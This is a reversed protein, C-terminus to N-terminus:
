YTAGDPEPSGLLFRLKALLDRGSFPKALFAVNPHSLADRGLGAETYGSLLLVKLGPRSRRLREALDIGTMGPMIVDTILLSVPQDFRGITDLAHAADEAVLVSFGNMRLITAVLERVGPEDEVLLVTEHGREAQPPSSTVHTATIPESTAPFYIKFVTGHELESYVQIHGAAQRVMGYVISLGLGSGKGAEKTTFFPEFIRQQTAADMGQGTDTVMVRVYQGAPTGLHERAYHQDLEVADTEILIRGGNPMAHRANIVLNVLIQELHVPDIKINSLHPELRMALDIDEGIIRRLMKEINLVVANPSIVVAQVVQNRSFALLQRTLESARNCAKLSQEILDHLPDRDPFQDLLLQNCGIVITLMNNFDHAIGGALTGIAEMRQAHILQAELARRKSVDTLFVVAFQGGNTQVHAASMEVPFQTGDKRRATLERIANSSFTRGTEFERLDPRPECLLLDLKSDLLDSRTYGFMQEVRENTMLIHGDRRLCVIGYASSEFLALVFEPDERLARTIKALDRDPELPATNIERVM